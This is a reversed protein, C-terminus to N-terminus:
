KVSRYWKSFEIDAAAVVKQPGALRVHWADEGVVVILWITRSEPRVELKSKPDQPRERYNWTGSVDVRHVTAKGITEKTKKTVDDITNGDPPEYSKIWSPFVKEPNAQSQPLIIVEADAFDKDASAIKFQHSRLRNAPKEAKWTAPVAAKLPGFDIVAPDAFLAVLALMM